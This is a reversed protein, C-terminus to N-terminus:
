ALTLSDITYGFMNDSPQLVAQFQALSSGDVLYSLAGSLELRGGDLATTSDLQLAALDDSGCVLLYSGDEPACTIRDSLFAPLPELGAPEATLAAAFDSLTEDSLLLQEDVYDSRDDMQGYLSLMNYLAEWTLEQDSSDFVAADQSLMALIVAHVAPTMSQAATTMAPATGSVQVPGSRVAEPGDALAVGQFPIVLLAATMAILLLKKM